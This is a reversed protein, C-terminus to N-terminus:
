EFHPENDRNWLRAVQQRRVKDKHLQGILDLRRKSEVHGDCFAIGARGAHVELPRRGPARARTPGM